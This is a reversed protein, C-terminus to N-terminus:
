SIVASTIPAFLVQTLGRLLPLAGLVALPITNAILHEWNAHVFPTIVIGGLGGSSRSVIGVGASSFGVPLFADIGRVFWMLGIFLFLAVARLKVSRDRDHFQVVNERSM